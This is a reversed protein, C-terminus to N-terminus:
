RSPNATSVPRLQDGHDARDLDYACPVGSGSSWGTSDLRQNWWHLSALVARSSNPQFLSVVEAAADTTPEGKLMQKASQYGINKISKKSASIVKENGSGIAQELKTIGDMSKGLKGLTRGEGYLNMPYSPDVNNGEQHYSLATEFDRAKYAASGLKYAVKALNANIKAIMPEDNAETAGKKATVFDTKAEEYQKEKFLQVGNNYTNIYSQAGLSISIFLLLLITSIRGM